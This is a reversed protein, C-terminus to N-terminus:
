AGVMPSAEIPQAHSVKVLPSTYSEDGLPFGLRQDIEARFLVNLTFFRLWMSLNGGNVRFDLGRRFISPVSFFNRRAAACCTRIEDATTGQPAYPVMGFRYEPDLWWNKFLLRGESELRRYLPTGPFPVLHNFAALFFRQRRAFDLTQQFSDQPDGDYGFVFTAYIRIGYRRLNASAQEYGGRMSNVQKNMKKLTADNLSEFGILLAQCGSAKLLRLFEEDYGVNISGQSVWRIKLPILARLFEKAQASNTTINDDVFFILRDRISRIEAVIEPIPRRCHTQHFFSQVACFECGFQCGRGAEVLGIKLYRKGSSISRDARIGALSPRGTQRYAPKLQGRCFDDLLNQWIEEAEGIM